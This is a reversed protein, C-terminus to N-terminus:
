QGGVQLRVGVLAGVQELLIRQCSLATAPQHGWGPPVAVAAWAAGWGASVHWNGACPFRFEDAGEDAALSVGVVAAHPRSLFDLSALVVRPRHPLRTTSPTSETKRTNDLASTMETWDALAIGLSQM